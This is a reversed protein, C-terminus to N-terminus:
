KEPCYHMQYKHWNYVIEAPDLNINDNYYKLLKEAQTIGTETIKKVPELFRGENDINRLGSRRNLGEQAIRHIQRAIKGAHLSGSVANLGKEPVKSRMELITNVDWGSILDCAEELSNDDYLLGVWLAPFAAIHSVCGADAGRMEIFQKLRVDPFVTSVHTEWDEMVPQLHHKGNFFDRFTMGNAPLYNNNRYIFYMPIDLLYDVWREFGFGRDFIFALFGCRDPDTNNWIHARYSLYGNPKGLSLPSNAFIATVVPQLAQAVRMKRVMDTESDYDLNVQIAATNTMM